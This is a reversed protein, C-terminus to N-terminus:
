SLSHTCTGKHRLGKFCLQTPCSCSQQRCSGLSASKCLPQELWCCGNSTTLVPQTNKRLQEIARRALEPDAPGDCGEIACWAQGAYAWPERGFRAARDFWTHALPLDRRVGAGHLYVLGLLWAAQASAATTGVGRRPEALLQLRQLERQVNPDVAPRVDIPTTGVPPQVINTKEPARPEIPQAGVGPAVIKPTTSPAVEIPSDPAPAMRTQSVSLARAEALAVGQAMGEVGASQAQAAMVPWIVM